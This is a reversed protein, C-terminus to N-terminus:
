PTFCVTEYNLPHLLGLIITSPTLYVKELFFTAIRLASKDPEEEETSTAAWKGGGFCNV